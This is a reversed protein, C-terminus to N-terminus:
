TVGPTLATPKPELLLVIRNWSTTFGRLRWWRIANRVQQNWGPGPSAGTVGCVSPQPKVSNRNFPLPSKCAVDDEAAEAAAPSSGSGPGPGFQSGPRLGPSHCSSLFHSKHCIEARPPRTCIWGRPGRTISGGEPLETFSM